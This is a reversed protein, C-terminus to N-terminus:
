VTKKNWDLNIKEALINDPMNILNLLHIREAKKYNLLRINELENKGLMEDTTPLLLADEILKIKDKLRDTIIKWGHSNRLENVATFDQAQM